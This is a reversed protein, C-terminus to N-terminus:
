DTDESKLIVFELITTETDAGTELANCASDLSQFTDVSKKSNIIQALELCQNVIARWDTDSAAGKKLYCHIINPATIAPYEDSKELFNIEIKPGINSSIDTHAAEYLKEIHQHASSSHAVIEQLMEIKNSNQEISAEEYTFSICIASYTDAVIAPDTKLIVKLSSRFKNAFRHATKGIKKTARHAIEKAKLGCKQSLERIEYYFHKTEIRAQQAVQRVRQTTRKAATFFSKRRTTAETQNETARLSPIVISALLLVYYRKKM